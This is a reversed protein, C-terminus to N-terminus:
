RFGLIGAQALYQIKENIQPDKMFNRAASPDKSMQDLVMRMGPDSLIEQVKPDRMAQAAREEQTVNEDEKGLGYMAMMAQQKLQQIENASKSQNHEQDILLAEDCAQIAKNHEKMAILAAIKRIYAKVFTKDLEIAKEADKLAQPLAMLKTYCAARNSYARPDTEARKIAETYSQVAEAFKGEKFLANGRNRAEESLAPDQYALRDAEAKLKETDRLKTLIDPTRHETLSKQFFKIAEAYNKQKLYASGMRGYARAIHKYDARLERGREAAQEATKICEELNDMEYYVASTNTLITIDSQDLDWAKRYHTLAEELKKAKYCANGLEKEKKSAEKVAAAEKEEASLEVEPEPEPEPKKEKAPEPQKPAEEPKAEEMKIDEPDAMTMNVGLLAGVTEMVRKDNMHSMFSQPNAQISQMTAVYTPDALYPSLKPNMAIKAMLDPGFLNGFMNGASNAMAAKVDELGKKLTANEPEVALGENYAQQAESLRNLGYLAAGKRGYGKSWDPKLDVAKQADDLAEQYSKQACFAASRNSYLVHNKGDLAIAQTFLDIANAYDKASFAKNGRAKLDEANATTM